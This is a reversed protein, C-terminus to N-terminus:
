EVTTKPASNATSCSQSGGVGSVKFTSGDSAACVCCQGQSSDGLPTVTPTQAASQRVGMLVLILILVQASLAQM